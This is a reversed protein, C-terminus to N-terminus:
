SNQVEQNSQNLQKYTKVIIIASIVATLVDSVPMSYLVGDLNFFLPLLLAFGVGFVIERVMSLLTSEMAKGMAQLFIFTAKNICALIVMCLYVRFAKLAFETYYISENAAGFIQILVNPFFEVIVFAVLGVLTEGILLKTFLEKVRQNLKAGMNFGVIPICGAAMGVVVSIVIQFFKMVIGVVAMPIQAYQSQAFIPDLAGYKRIMNNIAMMSAVLSIQSLFSCIGLSLTKFVIPAQLKFDSLKPKIIEARFLYWLSLIATVIQGIITALAAGMMGWKFGFIYVPDLIINVAAGALTAAMAFKPNGDARIIPNLAQGFMYFPIGLSIYFFYEKALRFTEENVKGGFAALIADDFILYAGTLILSVILCLLISNGVSRTANESKNEGLSISVFACCGDGIMVAFGLAIVTLPFVVTNAANGYSGLYSANAIFVQDVINYLAGVLLSIICPAAYKGMLKGIKETALYTQNQEM